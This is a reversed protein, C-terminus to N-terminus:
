MACDQSVQFVDSSLFASYPANGSREVLQAQYFGVALMGSVVLAGSVTGADNCDLIDIKDCTWVWLLPEPLNEANLGAEYIGIWNERQPQCRVFGITLEDSRLEKRTYCQQETRIMDICAENWVLETSNGESPVTANSTPSSTSNNMNEGDTDEEEFINNSSPPTQTVASSARLNETKTTTAKNKNSVFVGLLTSFMIMLTIIVIVKCWRIRDLGGTKSLSKGSWSRPWNSSDISEFSSEPEEVILARRKKNSNWASEDHIDDDDDDHESAWVDKESSSTECDTLNEDEGDRFHSECQSETQSSPTQETAGDSLSGGDVNNEQYGVISVRESINNKSSVFFTM